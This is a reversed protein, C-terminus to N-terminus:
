IEFCRSADLLNLGVKHTDQLGGKFNEEGSGDADRACVGSFYALKRKM